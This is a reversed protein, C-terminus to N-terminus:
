GGASLKRRVLGRVLKAVAASPCTSDQNKISQCHSIGIARPKRRAASTKNDETAHPLHSLGSASDSHKGGAFQSDYIQRRAIPPSACFYL